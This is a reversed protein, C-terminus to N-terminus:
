IMDQCRRVFPFCFILFDCFEFSLSSLTDFFVFNVWFVDIFIQSRAIIEYGCKRCMPQAHDVHSCVAIALESGNGM